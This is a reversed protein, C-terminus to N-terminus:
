VTKYDSVDLYCGDGTSVFTGGLLLYTGPAPASDATFDLYWAQDYYPHQLTATSYARGYVLVTKNEFAAKHNVMNVIQVRALTPSMTTLDYDYDAPTYTEDVSVEADIIRYGDLAADDAVFTGSVHIYSGVAPLSSVDNPIFEWQYDCCRTKDNYGWVYYRLLGNYEDQLIAFTGDKTVAKNEYADGNKDYFIYLYEAYEMTDFKERMSTLAGSPLNSPLVNGQADTVPENGASGTCAALSLVMLLAFLVAFFKKM